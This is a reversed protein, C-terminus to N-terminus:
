YQRLLGDLEALFVPDKSFKLYADELEFLANMLTEPVYRGGFRGFRGHQDPVQNM